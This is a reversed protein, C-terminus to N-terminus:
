TFHNFVRFRHLRTLFLNKNPLEPSAITFNSLISPNGCVPQPGPSCQRKLRNTARTGPSTLTREESVGTSRTRTHQQGCTTISWFRLRGQIIAPRNEGLTRAGEQRQSHSTIARVTDELVNNQHHNKRHILTTYKNTPSLTSHHTFIENRLRSMAHCPVVGAEPRRMSEVPMDQAFVFGKTTSTVTAVVVLAKSNKM